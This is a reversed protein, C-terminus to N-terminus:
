DVLLDQMFAATWLLQDVAHHAQKPEVLLFHAVQGLQHVILLPPHLDLIEQYLICTSRRNLDDLDIDRAIIWMRQHECQEDRQYDKMIHGLSGGAKNMM